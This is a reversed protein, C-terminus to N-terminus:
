SCVVGFACVILRKQQGNSSNPADGLMSRMGVGIEEVLEELPREVDSQEDDLPNEM